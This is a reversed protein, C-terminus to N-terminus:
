SADGEGADPPEGDQMFGDAITSWGDPPPADPVSGDAIGAFGDSCGSTCTAVVAVIPAGATSALIITAFLRTPRM